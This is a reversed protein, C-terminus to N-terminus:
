GKLHEFKPFLAHFVFSFLMCIILLQTCQHRTFTSTTTPVFHHTLIVIQGLNMSTPAVDYIVEHGDNNNSFIRLGYLIVCNTNYSDLYYITFLMSFPILRYSFSLCNTSYCDPNRQICNIKALVSFM